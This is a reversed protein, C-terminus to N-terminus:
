VFKEFIKLVPDNFDVYYLRIRSLKGNKERLYFLIQGFYKKNKNTQIKKLNLISKYPLTKIIKKRRVIMKIDTFLIETSKLKLYFPVIELAELGCYILLILAFIGFILNIISFITNKLFIWFIILSLALINLATLIYLFNNQYLAKRSNKNHYVYLTKENEKLYHRYIESTIHLEDEMEDLNRPKLLTEIQKEVEGTIEGIKAIQVRRIKGLIQMKFDDNFLFQKQLEDIGILHGNKQLWKYYAIMVEYYFIRYNTIPGIINPSKLNSKRFIIIGDYIKESFLNALCDHPVIQTDEYFPIFIQGKSTKYYIGNDEISVSSEPIADLLKLKKILDKWTLIIGISISSSVLITFITVIIALSQYNFLFLIIIFISFFTIIAEIFITRYNVIPIKELAKNLRLASIKYKEQSLKEIEDENGVLKKLQMDYPCFNFIISEFYHKIELYKSFNELKMLEGTINTSLSKTGMLYFLHIKTYPIFESSNYIGKNTFIILNFQYYKSMNISFYLVFPVGILSIIIIWISNINIIGATKLVFAVPFYFTIIGIAIGLKLISNDKSVRMFIDIVEENEKLKLKIKDLFDANKAWKKFKDKIKTPSKKEL